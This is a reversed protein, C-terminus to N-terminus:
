LPDYGVVSWIGTPDQRVLRKLYVQKVPGEAVTVICEGGNNAAEKLSKFPIKPEGVIGAPSVQLNVFTMAVQLPDLQWPTHGGDVQQQDAKAIEMDVPVKVQAKDVLSATIDPLKLDNAIQRALTERQSGEVRIELGGQYWRLRDQWVELPGGAASGLASGPAQEFSGKAPAEVVTTDGYDLVVRDQFAFIRNPADQPLVPTIHSIAAAEAVTAVLQGPNQEIVRYGVPPHYTFVQPDMNTNPAFTVFTYTTQMANQM